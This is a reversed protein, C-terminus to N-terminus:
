SALLQSELRQVMQFFPGRHQMLEDYRGSELIRGHDLVIFRDATRVTSLKHAIIFTTRGAALRTVAERIVQESHVDVAATAEDLILIRPDRVLARAIAIRQREGGSLRDGREGVETDYGDEKGVIFEHANAARAAAVVEEFSAEPRGYRINTAISGSFLFPEQLVVAIQARLDAVHVTRLDVGDVLVRGTDPHYFRCLLHMLTTKGAGSRGVIAIREGPQVDLTIDQLVPRGPDYGFGVGEFRVAGRVGLLRREEGGAPSELPTDLVEFIREAGTAAEVIWSMVQGCSQVPGHLM